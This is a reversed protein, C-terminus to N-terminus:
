LSKKLADIGAQVIEYATGHTWYDPALAGTAAMDDRFKQILDKQEQTWPVSGKSPVAMAREILAEEMVFHAKMAAAVFAETDPTVDYSYRAHCDAPCYMIRYTDAKMVDKAFRENGWPIYRRGKKIYLTQETM